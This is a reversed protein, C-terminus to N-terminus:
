PPETYKVTPDPLLPGPPSRTKDAPVDDDAAPPTTEMIVPKLVAVPELLPAMSTCVAFAAVEPTLPVNVRAVPVELEPFLPANNMRDPVALEPRPPSTYTDTPSASVTEPPLMVSEAPVDNVAVPPMTDILLPNPVADLLPASSMCVAFAPVAPTLPMKTSLVPLAVEPLLPAMYIPDPM